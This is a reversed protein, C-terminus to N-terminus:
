SRSLSDFASTCQSDPVVKPPPLYPVNILEVEEQKEEEQEQLV